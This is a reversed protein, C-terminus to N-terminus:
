EAALVLAGPEVLVLFTFVELGVLGFIEALFGTAGEGFAFGVAAMVGIIGVDVAGLLAYRNTFKLNGM